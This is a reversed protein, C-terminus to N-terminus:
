GKPRHRRREERELASRVEIVALMERVREEPQADLFDVYRVSGDPMAVPAVFSWGTTEIIASDQIMRLARM